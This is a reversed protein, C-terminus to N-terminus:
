QQLASAAVLQQEVAGHASSAGILGPQQAEAAVTAVTIPQDTLDASAHHQARRPHHAQLIAVLRVIQTEGALLGPGVAEDGPERGLM